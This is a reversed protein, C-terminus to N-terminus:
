RVSGLGGRAANVLGPLRHRLETLPPEACM